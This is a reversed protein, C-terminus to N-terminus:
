PSQFQTGTWGFSRLLEELQPSEQALPKLENVFVLTWTSDVEKRCQAKAARAVAELCDLVNNCTARSFHHAVLHRHEGRNHEIWQGQMESLLAAYITLDHEPCLLGSEAVLTNPKLIQPLELPSDKIICM